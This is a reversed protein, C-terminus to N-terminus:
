ATIQAREPEPATWLLIGVEVLFVLAAGFGVTAFLGTGAAFVGDAKVSLGGLLAPVALLGSLWLAWRPFVGRSAALMVSGFLLLSLWYM